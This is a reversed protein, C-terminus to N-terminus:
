SSGPGAIALAYSDIQAYKQTAARIQEASVSRIIQPYRQLYDLGLQHLEINALTGAVGDNTELGIALSGI